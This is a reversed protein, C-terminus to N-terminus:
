LKAEQKQITVEATIKYAIDGDAGGEWKDAVSGPSVDLRSYGGLHGSALAKLVATWMDGAIKLMAKANGEIPKVIWLTMLIKYDAIFSGGTEDKRETSVPTLNLWSNCNKGPNMDGKNQPTVQVFSPGGSISTCTTELACIAEYMSM